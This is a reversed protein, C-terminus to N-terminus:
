FSSQNKVLPSRWLSLYNGPHDWSAVAIMLLLNTLRARTEVFTKVNVVLM